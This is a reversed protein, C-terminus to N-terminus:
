AGKAEAKSGGSGRPKETEGSTGTDRKRKSDSKETKDETVRQWIKKKSRGKAIRADNKLITLATERDFEHVIGTDKAKLKITDSM